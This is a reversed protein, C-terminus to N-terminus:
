MITRECLLLQSVVGGHLRLICKGLDLGKSIAARPIFGLRNQAFTPADDPQRASTTVQPTQISAAADFHASASCLLHALAASTADVYIQSKTSTHTHPKSSIHPSAPPSAPGQFSRAHHRFTKTKAACKGILRAASSKEGSDAICRRTQRDVRQM